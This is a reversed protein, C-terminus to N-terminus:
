MNFLLPINVFLVITMCDSITIDFENFNVFVDSHCEYM